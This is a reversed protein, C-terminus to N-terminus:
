GFVYSPLASTLNGSLPEGVAGLGSESTGAAHILYVSACDQRAIPTAMALAGALGM